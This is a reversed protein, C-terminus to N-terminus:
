CNHEARHMELMLRANEAHLRALESARQAAAFGNGDANCEKLRQVSASFMVVADNYQITFRERHECKPM